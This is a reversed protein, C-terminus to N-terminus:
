KRKLAARKSAEERRWQAIVEHNGSLLVEPVRMGRYEPPHTYHPHDPDESQFSDELASEADHLVGPILRVIADIVVLAPIEGGSLVYEGISIERTVLKERIREDIGKYHGCLIMLCNKLSLDNALKQTFLEGDPSLYIVENYSRDASLEDFCEFFPEPKLVMGAGGGYPEDDITRHRDHTYNRLDHLVIEVLNKMRAQRIISEDLPGELIGPFGTVVDIRM